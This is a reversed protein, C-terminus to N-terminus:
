NIIDYAVYASCIVRFEYDLDLAYEFADYDIWIFGDRTNSTGWSNVVKFAHYEDSYGVALMAHSKTLEQIVHHPRYAILGLDDLKGFENDLAVALIIPTKELILAKMENVMNEGSLIKYDSIKNTSAELNHIDNPQINCSNENYPFSNISCAGKEKLIELTLEISTGQCDGLTLQNYTYAPSMIKNTTYTHNYQIKEQMTKMYYTVAWSTCSGQRGQNGIPPLYESLDYYSQITDPIVQNILVKDESIESPYGYCPYSILLGTFYEHGQHDIFELEGAESIYDEIQDDKDYACSSSLLLILTFLILSYKM